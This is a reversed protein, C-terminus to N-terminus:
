AAPIGNSASSCAAVRLVAEVFDRSDHLRQRKKMGMVSFEGEDAGAFHAAQGSRIASADRGLPRRYLMDQVRGDIACAFVTVNM